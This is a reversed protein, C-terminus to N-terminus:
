FACGAPFSLFSLLMFCFDLFLHAQQNGRSGTKAVWIASLCAQIMGAIGAKSIQRGL